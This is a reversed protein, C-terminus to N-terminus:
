AKLMFKEEKKKKWGNKEFNNILNNRRDRMGENQSM